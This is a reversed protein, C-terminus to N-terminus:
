ENGGLALDPGAESQAALRPGGPDSLIALSLKGGWVIVRGYERKPFGMRGEYGRCAIQGHLDSRDGMLEDRCCWVTRRYSCEAKTM